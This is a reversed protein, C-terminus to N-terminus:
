ARIACVCRVAVPLHSLFAPRSPFAAFDRHGTSAELQAIAAAVQDVSSPSTRNAEEMYTFNVSSKAQANLETDDASFDGHGDMFHISEVEIAAWDFNSKPGCRRPLAM